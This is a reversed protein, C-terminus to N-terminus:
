VAVKQLFSEVENRLDAAATEVAKSASLVTEASSRTETAAGAVEGLVAVIGKTGRAASAVNQSIEGTASNQQQVSAAVAATFQNIEQMRDVIRGIAEVATSTSGQVASIQAAIEETAKATQVALSKVESAVVAFGRGADGARAAEITANLALLNTQGAVDQILKVVDGIKRAANALSDIQDNTAGAEEAAIGVLNNTQGLQRSIEDISASLENAASAATEVNTSAENSAQVAGEARQSTQNSAAFLTAATSRMADANDSVTKLMTEARQRFDAIAADVAVRRAEKAALADREQDVRRRETIDQHTSVWGGGAMPRNTVHFVRGDKLELTSHDVRSDALKRMVKEIYPDIDGSFTGVESRYEFMQRLTSGPQAMHPLLNYMQRYQDNVLILRRSADFMGLGQSMNDIATVVQRYRRALRPLLFLAVVGCAAFGLVVSTIAALLAVPATEAAALITAPGLLLVALFSTGCAALGALVVLWFSRASKAFSRHM